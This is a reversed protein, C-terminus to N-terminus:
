LFRIDSVENGFYEDAIWETDGVHRSAANEMGLVWVNPQGERRSDEDVGADFYNEITRDSM